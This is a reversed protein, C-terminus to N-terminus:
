RATTTRCCTACCTRPSRWRSRARRDAVRVRDPPDAIRRARPHEVQDQRRHLDRRQGAASHRRNGGKEQPDRGEDRSGAAPHRRDPGVRVALAAAGRAVPDRAASLRQQHRDAEALRLARQLHPLVREAHRGQRRPVPHRRRAPRRRQSLARPFRSHPRLPGRQDDREHVARVLHLHAQPEEPADARLPRDRADPADQRSRRRRLHLAPQLLAVASRRRRPLGRARVPEVSRRHLHRLLLPARPQRTAAETSTTSRRSPAAARQGRGARQAAAASKRPSSPSRCLRAAAVEALAEDLVVSYHKTLWDRFLANPVRVDVLTGRTPSSPPRSSGPPTLQAPQGQDRDPRPGPGLYQLKKVGTSAM